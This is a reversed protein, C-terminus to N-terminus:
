ASRRDGDAIRGEERWSVIYTDLKNMYAQEYQKQQMKFIQM